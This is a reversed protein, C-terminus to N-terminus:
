TPCNQPPGSPQGCGRVCGRFANDCLCAETADIARELCAEHRNQCTVLCSTAQPIDSGPSRETDTVCGQTLLCVAFGLLLAKM